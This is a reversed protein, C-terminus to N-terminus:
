TDLWDTLQGAHFVGPCKTGDKLLLVGIGEQKGRVWEGYYRSWKPQEEDEADVQQENRDMAWAMIGVGHRKNQQFQGIYKTGDAWIMEGQGHMADNDFQGVYYSKDSRILIGAGSAKGAVFVGQYEAGGDWQMMGYGNRRDEKYMGTFSTGDLHLETGPGTQLDYRWYGTTVCGESYMVGRGHRKGEPSVEGCYHTMDAYLKRSFGAAMLKRPRERRVENGKVFKPKDDDTAVKIGRLPGIKILWVLASLAIEADKMNQFCLFVGPVPESAGFTSSSSPTGGAKSSPTALNTVNAVVSLATVASAGSPNNGPSAPPVALNKNNEEKSGTRTKVKEAGPTEIEMYVCRMATSRAEKMENKKGQPKLFIEKINGYPIRHHELDDEESSKPKLFVIGDERFQLYRKGTKGRQQVKVVKFCKGMVELAYRRTANRDPGTGKLDDIRPVFADDLDFEFYGSLDGRIGGNKQLIPTGIAALGYHENTDEKEKQVLGFWKKKTYTLKSHNIPTRVIADENPFDSNKPEFMSEMELLDLLPKEMLLEEWQKLHDKKERLKEKHRDQATSFVGNFEREYTSDGFLINQADVDMPAMQQAKKQFIQLDAKTRDPDGDLNEVFKKRDEAESQSDSNDEEELLTSTAAQNSPDTTAAGDGDTTMTGAKEFNPVTSARTKPRFPPRKGISAVQSTDAPPVSRSENSEATTTETSTSTAATSTSAKPVPRAPRKAAAQKPLHSAEDSDGDAMSSITAKVAAAAQKVSPASDEGNAEEGDKGVAEPGHEPVPMKVPEDDLGDVAGGLTAVGASREELQESARPGTPSKLSRGMSALFDEKAKQAELWAQEDRATAFSTPEEADSANLIEDFHMVSSQKHPHSQLGDSENSEENDATAGGATSVGETKTKQVTPMGASPRSAPKAGPRGPRAPRSNEGDEKKSSDDVRVSKKESTSAEKSKKKVPATGEADNDEKKSKRKSKEKDDEKKSKRKSKEDSESKRKPPPRAPKTSTADSPTPLKKGTDSAESTVTAAPLVAVAATPTIKKEETKKEEAAAPKPTESKATTAPSSSGKPMPRAPKVTEAEPISLRKPAAAATTKGVPVDANLDETGTRVPVPKKRSSGGSATLDNAKKSTPVVTLGISDREQASGSTARSIKHGGEEPIDDELDEESSSM